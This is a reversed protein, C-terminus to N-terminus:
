VTEVEFNYGDNRLFETYRAVMSPNDFKKANDVFYTISVKGDLAIEKIYSMYSL